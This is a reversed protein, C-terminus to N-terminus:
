DLNFHVPYHLRFPVAMGDKTLYPIFSYQSSATDFCRLVVEDCEPTLSQIIKTSQVLGNTDIFAELIVTGNIGNRRASAPYTLTSYFANIFGNYDSVMNKLGDELGIEEEIGDRDTDVFVKSIKKVKKSSTSNGTSTLGASTRTSCGAILFIGFLLIAFFSTKRGGVMSDMILNAM